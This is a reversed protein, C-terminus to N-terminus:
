EDTEITITMTAPLTWTDQEESAFYLVAHDHEIWAAEVEWPAGDAALMDWSQAVDEKGERWNPNDADLQAIMHEADVLDGAKVSQAQTIATTTM